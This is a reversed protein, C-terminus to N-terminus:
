SKFFSHITQIIYDQIAPTLETHMPLSLVEQCLQEAIPFTGRPYHDSVFAPQEHVPWPYYIMSPIGAAELHAKLADRGGKLIRLTYQHFVHTSAMSRAPTVVDALSSLAQDYFEAAAQRAQIYADLHPLKVRLVAAQLTDLRSNCGIVDHRYKVRQGHNSIMRIREALGADDTYIAGGDGMCGLNKSPFFSTCGIHGMTGVKRKRGDRFTYTAGIAQACDEVVYLKHAEALQLLSEMEAAQGYLHVPVIARTKPSMAAQVQDLDLSFTDPRVDVLVPSLGLLAIVEATAVYTFTATIVEDGPKLGLAMLAIQLADTGNACPLVHGVELYDALELAFAKVEPGQIYAGARAALVLASELEAQIQAHQGELDVMPLPLAFVPPAPMDLQAPDIRAFIGRKM